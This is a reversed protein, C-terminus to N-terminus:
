HGGLACLMVCFLPTIYLYLHSLNSYSLSYMPYDAHVNLSLNFSCELASEGILLWVLVEMMMGPHVTEGNHGPFWLDKTPGDLLGTIYPDIIQGNVSCQSTGTTGCIPHPRTWCRQGGVWTPRKVDAPGVVCPLGWWSSMPTCSPGCVTDVCRLMPYNHPGADDTQHWVSQCCMGSMVDLPAM